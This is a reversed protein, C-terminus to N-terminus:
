RVTVARAENGNPGYSFLMLIGSDTTDATSGTSSITMPLSGGAPVTDFGVSDVYRPAGLVTSMGEIKSLESGFFYNDYVYASVGIQQGIQANGIQSGCLILITNASNTQHATYFFASGSGSGFTGVFFLNQGSSAFTGLESTFGSYDPTGDNNTDFDVQISVPYNAHTIRQHTNVAIQIAPDNAGCGNPFTSVGVYRLDMPPLGLGAGPSATVFPNSGILAFTEVDAANAGTNTLKIDASGNKLKVSGAASVNGAARPLIHWPMTLDNTTGATDLTLYGDYEPVTLADGNGGSSGSNLTWPQLKTPDVALSLVFSRQSRAPVTISAPASPTVAGTAADGAFRFGPVINYTLPTNGYNRVVVTRRLTTPNKTVDIMGFSIAGGRSVSEWASAKAAIARDIRVEGGGIRTIPTLGGGFIAPKNLINTEATNM